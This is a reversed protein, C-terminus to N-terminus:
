LGATYWASCGGAAHGAVPLVDDHRSRMLHVASLTKSEWALTGTVALEHRRGYKDTGKKGNPCPCCTSAPRYCPAPLTRRTDSKNQRPVVPPCYFTIKSCDAQRNYSAPQSTIPDPESGKSQLAAMLLKKLTAQGTSVSAGLTRSHAHTTSMYLMREYVGERGRCVTTLSPGRLLLVPAAGLLSLAALAM